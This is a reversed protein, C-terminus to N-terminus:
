RGPRGIQGCIRLQARRGSFQIGAHHDAPVGFRRPGTVRDKGAADADIRQVPPGVADRGPAGGVEARYKEVAGSRDLAFNRAEAARRDIRLAPGDHDVEVIGSRIFQGSEALPHQVEAINQKEIAVKGFVGDPAGM